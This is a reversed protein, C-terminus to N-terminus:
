SQGVDVIHRVQAVDDSAHEGGVDVCSEFTQLSAIDQVDAPSVLVTSRSFYFSQLLLLGWLLDTIMVVGDMFLHVLPEVNPEIIEAPSACFPVGFYALLDEQINVLIAFNDFLLHHLGVALMARHEQSISKDIRKLLKLALSRSFVM